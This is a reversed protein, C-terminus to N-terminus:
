FYHGERVTKIRYLRIPSATTVYLSGADPGRGFGLQTTLGESPVPFREAIQGEPNLVVLGRNPAKPNGNHMALYLNGQRDMTMGDVMLEDNRFFLRGHSINGGSDLDYVVVGGLTIGFKDAAPGNPNIPLHKANAAAVYLHKGDPSVEIGNPRFIDTSLQTVKGDPDVRYVANPLEMPESGGYRADTFYVRGKADSTLDNPGNFHKGQYNDAVVSMAGTSLNRRMVARGGGKGEGGSDQAILLDGNRDIHLGNSMGSPELYKTTKGIVPDFRYITGGPNDPGPPLARTMSSFYVMGNRAAVVGEGFVMGERSVEVWTAGPALFGTPAQQMGACAMLFACILGVIGTGMLRHLKVM